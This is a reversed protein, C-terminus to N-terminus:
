VYSYVPLQHHHSLEKPMVITRYTFNSQRILIALVKAIPIQILNDLILDTPSKRFPYVLSKTLKQPTSKSLLNESEDTPLFILDSM